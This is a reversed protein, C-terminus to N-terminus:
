PAFIDFDVNDFAQSADLYCTYLKADNERAFHICERAM